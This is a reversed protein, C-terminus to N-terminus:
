SIDITKHNINNKNIIKQLESPTIFITSTNDNPHFGIEDYGLVEQDLILQVSSASDELLCFFSVSGPAVGLTQQLLDASGFSIKKQGLQAALKKLDLKKEGAMVILYMNTKNKNILFLNKIPKKDELVKQSEQVTFVAPHQVLRYDIGLNNLLDLIEPSRIV